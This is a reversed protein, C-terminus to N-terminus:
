INAFHDDITSPLSSLDLYRRDTYIGPDEFSQESQISVKRDKVVKKLLLKAEDISFEKNKSTGQFVVKDIKDHTFPLSKEFKDKKISQSFEIKKIKKPDLDSSENLDKVNFFM